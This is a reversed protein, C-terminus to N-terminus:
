KDTERRELSVKDIDYRGVPRSQLQYERIESPALDFDVDIGKLHGAGGSFMSRPMRQKGDQEIAIVRVDRDAINHAVAIATGAKTEHARGFFFAQEERQVGAGHGNNEQETAWDGLSLDFHIGCITTGQPFEAIVTQLEDVTQGDKRTVSTRRSNSQATSWNVTTGKPVGQIRVVIERVLRGPTNVTEAPSDCPAAALPKGDPAWWTSKGSPHTSVGVVDITMGEPLRELKPADHAEALPPILGLLFLGLLVLRHVAVADRLFLYSSRM